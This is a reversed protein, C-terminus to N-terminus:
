WEQGSELAKRNALAQEAVLRRIEQPDDTDTRIFDKSWVPRGHNRWQYEYIVIYHPTTSTTPVTPFVALVGINKRALQIHEDM